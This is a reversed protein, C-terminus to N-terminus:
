LLQHYSIAPFFLTGIWVHSNGALCLLGCNRGYVLIREFYGTHANNWNHFLEHSITLLFNLDFPTPVDLIPVLIANKLNRAINTREKCIYISILQQTLSTPGFIKEFYECIIIINQSINEISEEFIEPITIILQMYKSTVKYTIFKGSLIFTNSVEEINYSSKINQHVEWSVIVDSSTIRRCKILSPSILINTPLLFIEDGMFLINHENMVKPQVTYEFRQIDLGFIIEANVSLNRREGQHTIKYDLILRDNMNAM